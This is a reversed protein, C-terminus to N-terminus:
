FNSGNWGWHYNSEYKVYIRESPINITKTIELTLKNTFNELIKDDPLDGFIKVEVMACPTSIGQFYLSDKDTFEIMLWSESKGPFLSILKGFENKLITKNKGEIEVNTKLNIFPM